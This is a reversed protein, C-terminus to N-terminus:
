KTANKWVLSKFGWRDVPTENYVFFQLLRHNTGKMSAGANFLFGLIRMSFFYSLRCEGSVGDGHLVWWLMCCALWCKATVHKKHATNDDVANQICWCWAYHPTWIGELRGQQKYGLLGRMTAGFRVLLTAAWVLTQVANISYEYVVACYRVSKYGYLTFRWEILWVFSWFWVFIRANTVMKCAQNM